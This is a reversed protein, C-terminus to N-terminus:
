WALRFSFAGSALKDVFDWGIGFTLNIIAFDLCFGGYVQPIIKWGDYGGSFETPLIGWNQLNGLEGADGDFISNWQATASWNVESKTYAVKAGIYPIFFLLKKSLQAQLYATHNKFNLNANAEDSSIGVGGKTFVYGAGVSFKPQWTKGQLIAWRFDFGLTFFDFAMPSIAEDLANIRSSDITMFSAGIDFPLLIGGLRVDGAVTPFVFSDPLDSVESMGFAKATDKLATIKMQSAGLDIGAGLHFGPVLKGLWAEAWVNQMLQTNSIAPALDKSFNNLSNEVDTLPTLTGFDNLIDKYVRNIEDIADKIENNNVGKLANDIQHQNKYYLNAVDDPVSYDIGNLRISTEAFLLSTTIAIALFCFIKKLVLRRLFITDRLM